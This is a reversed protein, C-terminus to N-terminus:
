ATADLLEEQISQEFDSEGLKNKDYECLTCTDVLLIHFPKYTPNIKRKNMLEDLESRYIRQKNCDNCKYLNM